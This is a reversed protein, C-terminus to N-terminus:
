SCPTQEKDKLNAWQYLKELLRSKDVPKPLYDDMGAAIFREQDGKMANATLAIIPINLLHDKGRIQQTAEIGDMRPMYIDMLILDYPLKQAAEVAEIGDSVVDVQYGTGMLMAQFVMQNSPSDEALLVRVPPCGLEEPTTYPTTNSEEHALDHHAVEFPIEINFIAGIGPRGEASIEGGMLEVLRQCIALGLGTGEHQRSRSSDIQSFPQFLKEVQEQPFGIGTDSISFRLRPQHDSCATDAVSHATKDMIRELTISVEGQDTFKIANSLLNLLVQQLRGQDGHVRLRASDSITKRIIIGKEDARARSLNLVKDLTSALDFDVPELELKGAEIKSIDLIENLIQLLHQASQYATHCYQQEQETHHKSSRLLGLLGLVANMPTRVEHSVTALFASKAKNAAEAREKAQQLEAEKQKLETIDMRYGVIGGGRISREVVRIWRGSDLQQEMVGKPYLHQQMRKRILEEGNLKDHEHTQYQGNILGYRLIEEFTRGEQIVERSTSYIERYRENCTQLRDEADYIVFGDPLAEIADRFRIESLELAESAAQVAKQFHQPLRLLVYILTPIILTALAAIVWFLERGPWSTVELSDKIAIEWSGAPLSVETVALASDFTAPAGYFVEGQKGSADKGRIAYHIRAEENNLEVEQLLEPLDILVTAFGWFKEQQEKISIFIPQRGILAVGGQLLNVPGALWIRRADIAKEAAARRNPDALLDHGIAKKNSSSPWVHTVIGNPALQLSRIAPINGGLDEAFRQFRREEIHENARVLGALGQTINLKANLETELRGRVGALLEVARAAKDAKLAEINKQDWNYALSIIGLFFMLTIVLAYLRNAFFHSAIRISKQLLSETSKALKSSANTKSKKIEQEILSALDNLLQRQKSDFTRPQHDIICLTGIRHGTPSHLPRGAYFRLKLDGTVLPNDCFREDELANEVVMVGDNMIAHGCFSICRETELTDLGARSKFWQRQTDVLSILAIPVQFCQQALRTVRDFREESASDLLKLDLLAKLREPENQPTPAELM